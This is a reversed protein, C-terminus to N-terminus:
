HGASISSAVYQATLITFIYAQLFGVFLELAIMAMTLLWALGGAVNYVVNDAWYLLYTGGLVFLVVTMHGAFMNAFLRMSLTLPRVIFVSLFELPVILVYLPAPVGPPMTANKFYGPGHTKVGIGIYVCFVVLVMGYVYGVRSFTPFMFVFFEGFWNNTIILFFSALLLPMWKRYDHGIVEKGITSQIYDYVQEVLWQGKRPVVSLHRAALVWMTIVLVLSIALMITTKTLWTTGLLGPTAFIGADPATFGHNGAQRTTITLAVILLVAVGLLVPVTLSRRVPPPAPTAPAAEATTTPEIMTDAM